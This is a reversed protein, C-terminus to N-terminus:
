QRMIAFVLPLIIPDEETLQYSFTDDVLQVEGQEITAAQTGFIQALREQPNRNAEMSEMQQFISHLDLESRSFLVVLIEEDPRSGKSDNTQIYNESDPISM